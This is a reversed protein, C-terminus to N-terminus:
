DRVRTNVYWENVNAFRMAPTILLSEKYGHARGNQVYVYRSAFLPLSPVDEAFYSQFEAYLEKRRAADATQRARELTSDIRSDAYGSLNRGPPEIQSSHWFPYPDPDPAVDISFLAAEFRRALLYQDVFAASSLPQVTVDAGAARCQAAVAEALAVRDADNNTSITFALRQGDKTRVADDGVTWGDQDLLVKAQDLDTAAPTVRSAAWYGPPIAASPLADAVAQGAGLAPVDLAQALALRVQRDAFMPSRTDLYVFNIQASSLSHMDYGGARGAEDIAARSTAPLLAADVDHARLAAGLAAVNTYARFEFTSIKPPGLHYTPNAELLVRATDRSKFVYPGTGVPRGNFASNYLGSADTDRLVHEPLIGLTLYSLFPSYPQELKFEVTLPDRERVVVGKMLQALSPDGKFAADAIANYTFVVDAATFACRTAPDPCHAADHWAVGPRLYFVYSDGNGAIDWREALDPQPTGDPALRVLGSFVLSAIDADTSGPIVFLPNIRQPAGVVGEIYHGGEAPVAEGKRGSLAFYWFAGAILVGALLACFIPWPRRTAPM